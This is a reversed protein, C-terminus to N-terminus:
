RGDRQANKSGEQNLNSTRLDGERFHLSDLRIWCTDDCGLEDMEV